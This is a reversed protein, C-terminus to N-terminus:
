MFLYMSFAGYKVRLTGIHLKQEAVEQVRQVARCTNIMILNCNILIRCLSYRQVATLSNQLDIRVEGTALNKSM